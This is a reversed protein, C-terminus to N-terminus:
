SRLTKRCFPIGGAVLVAAPLYATPAWDLVRVLELSVFDAAYFCAVPVLGLAMAAARGRDRSMVGICFGLPVLLCPLLAFCARRHVTFRAGGPNDHVGRVVEALLQDSTLDKDGEHRMADEALERTDMTFSPAEIAIGALPSRSGRMRLSVFEREAEFWTEDAAYVDGRRFIVVDHFRHAADERSWTMVGYDKLNIQDGAVRTTLIVGRIAEAVVRYKHFHAWPIVYHVCAAAVLAAMIGVLAAASMPVVLNIGAAKIATLEREASARAFTSITGFLLAIAVLHPFADATLLLTILVADLLEGGQARDIGRYVMSVAVVGFLVTLTLCASVLVEKFYYRHLRWM